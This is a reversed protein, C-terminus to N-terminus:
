IRHMTYFSLPILSNKPLICNSIPVDATATREIFPAVPFLRMTEKIVRDLHHLKQMHEYTTAEDQADFVSHLEDVLQEQIQPHIALMLITHVATTATTDHGALLIIEIQQKVMEEGLKGEVFLPIIPLQPGGSLKEVNEKQTNNNNSLYAKTKQNFVQQFQNKKEVVYYQDVMNKLHFQYNIFFIQDFMVLNTLYRINALCKQEKKYLNTWRYIFDYHAWPM